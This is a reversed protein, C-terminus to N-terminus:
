LPEPPLFCSFSKRKKYFIRPSDTRTSDFIYFLSSFPFTFAMNSSIRRFFNPSKNPLGCPLSCCLSAQGHYAAMEGIEQWVAHKVARVSTRQRRLVCSFVPPFIHTKRLFSLFLAAKLLCSRFFEKNEDRSSTSMRVFAEPSQM